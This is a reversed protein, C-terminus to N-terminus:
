VDEELLTDFVLQSDPLIIDRGRNKAQYLYNDAQKFLNEPNNDEIVSYAALGGSVTIHMDKEFELAFLNRQIKEGILRAQQLPTESCIILFEDGGYRGIYDSSRLNKRLINAVEVLVTDGMAHGFRDNIQKFYDIDILIISFVRHYRRCRYYEEELREKIAHHNLLGTLGDTVSKQHLVASHKKLATQEKIFLKEYGIVISGCILLSVVLNLLSISFVLARSEFGTIQATAAPNQIKVLILLSVGLLVLAEGIIMITRTKGDTLAIIVILLPIFYIVYSRSDGIPLIFLSPLLFVICIVLIAKIAIQQNAKSTISLLFGLLLLIISIEGFLLYYSRVILAAVATIGAICVGVAGTCTLLLLRFEEIPNKECTSDVSCSKIMNSM